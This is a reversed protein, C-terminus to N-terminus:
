SGELQDAAEQCLDQSPNHLQELISHVRKGYLTMSHKVLDGFCIQELDTAKVSLPVINGVIGSDAPRNEHPGDDAPQNESFEYRLVVLIGSPIYFPKPLVWEKEIVPQTWAKILSTVYEDQALAVPDGENIFSIFM